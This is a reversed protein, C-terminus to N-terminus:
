QNLFRNLQKWFEWGWKWFIFYPSANTIVLISYLEFSYSQKYRRRCGTWSLVSSWWATVRREGVQLEIVRWGPLFYMNQSAQTAWHNLAQRWSLAHGRPGPILDQMPSEAPLRSRGRGTDRGRETHRLFLCIEFFAYESLGSPFWM